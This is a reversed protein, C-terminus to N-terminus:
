KLRVNYGLDITFRNRYDYFSIEQNSYSLGIHLDSIRNLMFSRELKFTHAALQNFGGIQTISYLDDPSNGYDIEVGWYDLENKNFIRYNGTMSFSKRNTSYNYVFYPRIAAWNENIYKGIHATVVFVNSNLRQYNM